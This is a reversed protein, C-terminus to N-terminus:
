WVHLYMLYTLYVHMQPSPATMSTKPINRKFAHIKLLAEQRKYLYLHFAVSMKM